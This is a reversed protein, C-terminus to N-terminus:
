PTENEVVRELREIKGENRDIVSQILRIEEITIQEYKSLLNARVSKLLALIERSILALLTDPFSLKLYGFPFTLQCVARILLSLVALKLRIRIRM